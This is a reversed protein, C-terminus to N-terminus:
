NGRRMFVKERTIIKEAIMEVKPTMEQPVILLALVFESAKTLLVLAAVVLLIAWSEVMAM